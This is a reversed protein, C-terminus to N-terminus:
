KDGEVSCKPLGFAAEAARMAADRSPYRKGRGGVIWEGDTTMVYSLTTWSRVILSWTRGASDKHWVISKRWQELEALQESAAAQQQVSQAQRERKERAQQWTPAGIFARVAEVQSPYEPRSNSRWDARSQQQQPQATPRQQALWDPMDPHHICGPYDPPVYPAAALVTDGVIVGRPTDRACGYSDRYLVRHPCTGCSPRNM